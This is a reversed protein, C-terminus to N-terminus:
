PDLETRPVPSIAPSLTSLIGVGRLNANYHPLPLLLPVSLLCFCIHLMYFPLLAIFFLLVPFTSCLSAADRNPHNPRAQTLPHPRLLPKPFPVSLVRCIGLSLPKWVSLVPLSLSQLFLNSFTNTFICHSSYLVWNSNPKTEKKGQACYILSIKVFTDLM